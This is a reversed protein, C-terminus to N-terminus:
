TMTATTLEADAGRLGRRGLDDLLEILFDVSAEGIELQLRPEGVVRPPATSASEGASKPVSIASSVSL